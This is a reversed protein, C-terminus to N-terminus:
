FPIFFRIASILGGALISLAYGLLFGTAVPVGYEEYAKSGGIHLTLLKLIWAVAVMDWIGESISRNAYSLLFGYPDLPFAVFRAHLWSLAWIIFVGSLWYAVWNEGCMIEPAIGSWPNNPDAAYFMDRAFQSYQYFPLNAAGYTYAMSFM